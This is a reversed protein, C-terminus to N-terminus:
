PGSIIAPAPRPTEPFNKALYDAVATRDNPELAVMTSFLALWGDRTYGGSNAILSVSHCTSCQAQVIDKGAGDPLATAQGRGRGQGHLTVQRALGTCFVCVVVVAILGVRSPSSM